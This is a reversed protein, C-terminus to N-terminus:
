LDKFAKFTLRIVATFQRVRLHERLPCVLIENGEWAADTFSATRELTFLEHIEEVLFVLPDISLNPIRGSYDDQKDNGFRQRIAIDVPITYATVGRAAAEAKQKTTEAVVDIRLGTEKDLELEWDAYSREITPALSLTAASLAAVVAEAVNVSVANPM